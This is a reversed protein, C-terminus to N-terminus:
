PLLQYAIRGARGEAPQLRASTALAGTLGEAGGRAQVRFVVSATGAEVLQVSRVGPVAALLRGAEAYRKLSAVGDVQVFAEAEPQQLLEQAEAALRDAALHVAGALTGSSSEAGRSSILRWNLAREVTASSTPTGSVAVPEGLLLVDAGERRALALAADAALQPELGAVSGDAGVQVPLGRLAATSEIARRIADREAPDPPPVVAVLVVARQRPWLKGGAATVARDIAGGDLVVLLGEPGPRFSQVYRQADTLLKAYAPDQAADRRGTTRVLAVRMAEPFATARDTSTTAVDFPRVARAGEALPMVAALLLASGLVAPWLRRAANPANRNM